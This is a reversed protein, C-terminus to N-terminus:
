RRWVQRVLRGKRYENRSVLDFSTVRASALREGLASADRRSDALLVIREFHAPAVISVPAAAVLALTSLAVAIPHESLQVAYFWLM